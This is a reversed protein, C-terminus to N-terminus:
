PAPRGPPLTFQVRAGGGKLNEAGIEGGHAEVITRSISLGMGLGDSRSTEFPEFLSPLRSPPIGPGSDSVAVVQWGDERGRVGVVLRADDQGEMAQMANNILNLVVQQIQIRDAVIAPLDADFDPVVTVGRDVLAARAVERVERVVQALDIRERATTDHRMLARLRQIIASARRDDAVIDRLVEVLLSPEPSGSDLMRLAAQANSLMAALPQNLEHALAGTLEGLASVRAVHALADRHHLAETRAVTEATIDQCVAIFTTPRRADELRPAARVTWHRYSLDKTQIRFEASLGERREYVHRQVDAVVRERDEPHLQGAWGDITRPFEGREYGLAADVQGFWVVVGSRIDVEAIIDAGLAAAIRFREESERLATDVALRASVDRVTIVVVLGEDTQLPNLDAEAPFRRGGEGIAEVPQLQGPEVTPVSEDVVMGRDADLLRRLKGHGPVLEDFSRGVLTGGDYGFLREAQRNVFAISGDARVAILADPAQELLKGLRAESARATDEARKRATVDILFGRIIAPEGDVREVAVVDHLWLVEGHAGVMRYELEYAEREVLAEERFRLVRERDDPHLRTLWFAPQYWEDLSFGLLREAQSGVYTFDRTRADAEWQIISTAELLRRFGDARPSAALSSAAAPDHDAGPASMTSETMSSTATADKDM